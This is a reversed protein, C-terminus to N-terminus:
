IVATYNVNMANDRGTYQTYADKVFSIQKQQRLQLQSCM